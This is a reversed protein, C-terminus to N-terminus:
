RPDSCGVVGSLNAESEVKKGPNNDGFIYNALPMFGMSGAADFNDAVVRVEAAIMPEYRRLEVADDSSAVEFEPSEIYDGAMAMDPSLSSVLAVACALVAFLKM